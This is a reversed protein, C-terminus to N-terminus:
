RLDAHSSGPPLIGAVRAATRRVRPLQAALQHGPCATASTDRHGIVRGPPIDYQRMLHAILVSLSRLQKPSPPSVDFDGVLCIGVGVENFRNDASKAHAGHKQKLWRPGVEVAGDTTDSGNGIVFHYGLEDWGKGRHMRDFHRGGGTDTASHHIVIYRWPRPRVVPIWSRPVRLTNARPGTQPPTVVGPSPPLVPDPIAATVPKAPPQAVKAAPPHEPEIFGSSYRSESACGAALLLCAALTGVRRIHCRFASTMVFFSRDVM